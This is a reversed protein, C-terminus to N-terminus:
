PFTIHPRCYNPGVFHLSHASLTLSNWHPGAMIIIPNRGRRAGWSSFTKNNCQKLFLFPVSPDANTIFPLEGCFAVVAFLAENWWLAAGDNEWKQREGEGKRGSGKVGRSMCHLQMLLWISFECSPTYLNKKDTCQSRRPHSGCHTDASSLVLCSCAM